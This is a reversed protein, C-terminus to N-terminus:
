NEDMRAMLLDMMQKVESPDMKWNITRRLGISKFLGIWNIWDWKQCWNDRTLHSYVPIPDVVPNIPYCV